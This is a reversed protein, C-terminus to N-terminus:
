QSPLETKMAIVLHKYRKILCARSLECENFVEFFINLSFHPLLERSQVSNEPVTAHCSNSDLEMDCSGNSDQSDTQNRRDLSEVEPLQSAANNVLEDSSNEAGSTNENVVSAAGNSANNLIDSVVGNLHLNEQPQLEPEPRAGEQVAVPVGNLTGNCQENSSDSSSQSSEISDESGGMILEVFQRCKLLFELKPNDNLLTPYRKETEKLAESISGEMVLKELQNRNEISQM